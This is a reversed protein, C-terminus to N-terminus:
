RNKQRINKVYTQIEETMDEFLKVITAFENMDYSISAVLEHSTNFVSVASGTITYAVSDVLVTADRNYRSLVTYPREGIEEKFYTLPTVDFKAVLRQLKKFEKEFREVKTVPVVITKEFNNVVTEQKITDALM